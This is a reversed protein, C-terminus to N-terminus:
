ALPGDTPPEEILPEEILPEEMSRGDSSPEEMSAFILIGMSTQKVNRVVVSVASGISEEGDAVVVMTGDELFGVGQGPEKGKKTLELRFTEGPVHRERLLENLQDLNLCTVNHLEALQQLPLDVTIIGTRIRRALEVLKADPDSQGMVEEEVVHVEIGPVKRLEELVSLGRRGRRRRTPDQADAISRIEDLEFNPILLNGSVLGNQALALLRGDLVASADLLTIESGLNHSYASAKALPRTSLGAAAFLEESKSSGISYGFYGFVWVILMFAIWGIKHPILVPAPIAILAGFVAGSLSGVTGAMLKHAPLSEFRADVYNVERNLFRGVGGGIVYGILAGLVAGIVASHAKSQDVGSGISGGGLSYGLATSMLVILLRVVEVFLSAGSSGVGTPASSQEKSDGNSKSSKSRKLFPLTSDSRLKKKTSM